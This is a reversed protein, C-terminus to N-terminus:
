GVARTIEAIIASRDVTPDLGLVAAWTPVLERAGYRHGYGVAIENSVSMDATVQWFTVLPYWTMQSMPGGVRTERLWEPSSGLLDPSWWVVPDSQHQLYVVRPFDWAGLRRGYQDAYLEATTSAFRVHRGDDLVPNLETSGPHRRALLQARTASFAPTGTWVAGDVQALMQEPGTFADNGGYSGLSEGGVYLKPRTEAPLAALRARVADLLLRSARPPEDRAALLAFASPLTSYQMSVVATDGQGLFEFTSASWENVFGTSTATILYISRREWARTRDLEALVRDASHRLDGDNVGVFVRIPDKAPRGTVREIDARSPGLSVFISGDSGLSHWTEPSGPGGSRVPSTPASLGQPQQANVKDAQARALQMGGPLVVREVVVLVAALVLVTAIARALSERLLRRSELRLTLRETLGALLRWIGLVLAFVLVATGTSAVVWGLGPPSQGATTATFQQWRLSLLPFALLGLAVLVVVAWQLLRRAAPKVSVELGALRALLKALDGLTAGVVHGLLACIAAILGQLYWPRPLLSPTNASVYAATALVLGSSSVGELHDHRWGVIRDIVPGHSRTIALPRTAPSDVV